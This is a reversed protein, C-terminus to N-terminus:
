LPLYEHLFWYFKVGVAWVAPFVGLVLNLPYLFALRGTEVPNVTLFCAAAINTVTTFETFNRSSVLRGLLDVHTVPAFLASFGM